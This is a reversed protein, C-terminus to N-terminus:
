IQVVVRIKGVNHAFQSIVGILWTCVGSSHRHPVQRPHAALIHSDHQAAFPGILQEAAIQSVLGVAVISIKGSHRTKKPPSRKTKRAPNRHRVFLDTELVLDLAEKFARQKRSFGRVHKPIAREALILLPAEELKRIGPRQSRNQILHARLTRAFRIKLAKQVEVLAVRHRVPDEVLYVPHTHRMRNLHARRKEIRANDRKGRTQRLPVLYGAQFGLEHQAAHHLVRQRRRHQTPRLNTEINGNVLPEAAHQTRQKEVCETLFGHRFAPEEM